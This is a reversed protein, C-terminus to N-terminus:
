VYNQLNKKLEDVTATATGLKGVVIGAAHNSIIAAEQLTAGSALSLIFASVVTDGAGSVDFVEKAKTPFHRTAEREFLTMGDAGQTVLVNCELDRQIKNGALELTKEGSIALAEEFNSILLNANKFYPAQSPKKTNGIVPKGYKKGLEIVKEALKRSVVGKAYDSIVAADWYNFTSEVFSILKDEMEQGIWDTNEKDVRVMQQTRAIIRTKQTTPKQPYLFVGATRIGKLKLENVLRHGPIDEGITGIAFVEGGLASINNATNAAGGPMYTERDVLVVPVPAEPSIRKVEGWIFQDLM